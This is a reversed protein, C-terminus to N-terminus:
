RRQKMKHVCENVKKQFEKWQFATREQDKKEEGIVGKRKKLEEEEIGM